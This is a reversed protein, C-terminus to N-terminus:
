EIYYKGHRAGDRQVYNIINDKSLEIENLIAAVLLLRLKTIFPYLNELKISKEYDDPDYHTYYNRTDVIKDIFGGDDINLINKLYEFKNIIEKLKKRLSKKNMYKIKGYFHARRDKPVFKIVKKLNDALKNFKEENLYESNFTRTHYTELAQTLSLFQNTIYMYPNYIISFYLDFIPEIYDIKNFWNNLLNEPDPLQNFTAIMNFPSIEHTNQPLAKRENFLIDITLDEELEKYNVSISNLNIVYGSFLSIFNRTQYVISFIKDINQPKYLEIEIISKYSVKNDVWRVGVSAGFQYYIKFKFKSLEYEKKDPNLYTVVWKRPMDTKERTRTRAHQIDIISEGLWLEQNEFNMYLRDFIMEEKANIHTGVFLISCLIISKGFYISGEKLHDEGPIHQYAEITHCEYLTLRTGDGTSGHIIPFSQMEEYPFDSFTGNIILRLNENEKYIIEGPLKNDPKFPIWWYGQFTKKPM